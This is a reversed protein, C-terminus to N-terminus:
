RDGVTRPVGAGILRALETRLAGQLLDLGSFHEPDAVITVALEGAYSLVQFQVPTNGSEGVVLAVASVIARGDLTLRVDPGRVHSVLTHMRHQHTM